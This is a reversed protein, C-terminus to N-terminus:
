HWIRAPLLCTTSDLAPSSSVLRTDRSQRYLRAPVLPLRKARGSRPTRRSVSRAIYLTSYQWTARFAAGHTNSSRSHCAVPLTFSCIGKMCYQPGYHVRQLGDLEDGRSEVGAWTILGLIALYDAWTILGGPPRSAGECRDTGAGECKDRSGRM